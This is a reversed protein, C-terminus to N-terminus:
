SELRPFLNTIDVGYLGSCDFVSILAKGLVVFVKERPSLLQGDHDLFESFVDSSKSM